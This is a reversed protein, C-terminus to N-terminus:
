TEFLNMFHLIGEVKQKQRSVKLIKMLLQFTSYCLPLIGAEACEDGGIKEAKQGQIVTLKKESISRSGVTPGTPIVDLCEDEYEDYIPM